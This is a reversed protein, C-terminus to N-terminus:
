VHLPVKLDWVTSIVWVALLSNLIKKKKLRECQRGVLPPAWSALVVIM